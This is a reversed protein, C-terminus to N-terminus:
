GLAVNLVRTMESMQFPKSITACFGYDTFNAMIPDNSYGSAVVVRAEPDLKLIERVAEKGGMGGPITLDMIVLDFPCDSEMAQRFVDIAEAGDHSVVVESGLRTLMARAVRRVMDDDDMLLIKARPHLQNNESTKQERRASEVSVPLYIEFTTGHDASSKVLINGQHKKIISLCIALGLGSGEAKTSFYPDFIKDVILEPIGPGNDQITIKVCRGASDDALIYKDPSDMNECSIRITGGEPMAQRANLVINQIVQGIQGKDVNVFWLDKPIICECAVKDGHLVFDASEQIITELSSAEKVPDGGKSFTLLQRTLEKARMSAKEAEELLTKSDSKLEHDYLVLSINGIIATLINNFDHAIGGALIGISEIKKIKLLEEETKKKETIDRSIGILGLNNNNPGCYPTKLTDLLVSTGDPYTVWAENRVPKGQQLVWRDKGRFFDAQERDFLDYDSSGVIRDKPLGAFKSFATNCGLYVGSPNKYFILDPISDILSSLLASTRVFEQAKVNVEKELSENIENIKQLLRITEVKACAIEVGRCLLPFMARMEEADQRSFVFLFLYSDVNEEGPHVPVLCFGCPAGERLGAPIFPPLSEPKCEFLFEDGRIASVVEETVPFSEGIIGPTLFTTYDHIVAISEEDYKLYSSYPIEKLSSISELTLDIAEEASKALNIKESIIGLLLFDEAKSTLIENEERLTKIESELSHIKQLLRKEETM